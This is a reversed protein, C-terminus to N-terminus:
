AESTRLVRYAPFVTYLASPRDQPLLVPAIRNGLVGLAPLGSESFVRRRPLETFLPLGDPLSLAYQEHM